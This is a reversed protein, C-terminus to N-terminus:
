LGGDGLAHLAHGLLESLIAAAPVTDDDVAIRVVGHGRGGIGIVFVLVSAFVVSAVGHVLTHGGDPLAPVFIPEGRELSVEAAHGARVQLRGRVLAEKPNEVLEQDHRVLVPVYVEEHHVGDVGCGVPEDRGVPVKQASIFFLGHVQQLAEVVHAHDYAARQSLERVGGAGLRADGLGELGARGGFDDEFHEFRKGLGPAEEVGKIGEQRLM